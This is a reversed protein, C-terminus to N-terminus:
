KGVRPTTAVVCHRMLELLMVQLVPPMVFGVSIAGVRGAGIDSCIPFWQIRRRQSSDCVVDKINHFRKLFSHTCRLVVVISVPQVFKNRTM